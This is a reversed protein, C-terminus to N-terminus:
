VPVGALRFGDLVFARDEGLACMKACIHAHVATDFTEPAEQVIQRAEDTRGLHALCTAENLKFFYPADILTRYAALAADMDRALYYCDGLSSVFAPPLLPELKCARKALELGEQHRGAFSMIWGRALLVNVDRPSMAAAMDSYRMAEGIQGAMAFCSAVSTLVYPDNKDAIIAQKAFQQAQRDLQADTSSNPESFRWYAYLLALAAHAPAYHPDIRIAETMHERALREDGNRWAAHSKLWSTYASVSTTPNKARKTGAADQLNFFLRGLVCDVIEDQVAFIDTMERDFKEAFVHSGTQADILQVTARMRQGALRISGEVVFDVGLRRGVEALDISSGKYTSATNRAVVALNKFRSLETIIDETIGDAFYDQEPNGSINVFPLVAVTTFEEGSTPAVAHTAGAPTVAFARIPTGINKLQLHGLDEAIVDVKGRIENYVKDSMCIGGPRAQGELRAAINVGDGYIDSGEGIVDGLNIGIRLTVQHAEPLAVNAEAMKQQLELSGAVANVASAFEILVGDGMLKVVRGGHSRIVPELVSKRRDKLVKLTGVEDAEMMRSYGVVDAVVIAALRRQVSGDSM